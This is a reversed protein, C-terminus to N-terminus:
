VRCPKCGDPLVGGKRMESVAKLLPSDNGEGLCGGTYDYATTVVDTPDRTIPTM